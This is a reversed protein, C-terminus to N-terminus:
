DLGPGAELAASVGPWEPSLLPWYKFELQTLRLPWRAHSCSGGGGAQAGGAVNRGGRLHGHGAQRWPAPFTSSLPWPCPSMSCHRGSQAM